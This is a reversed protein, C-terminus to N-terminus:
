KAEEITIMKKGLEFRATCIMRVRARQTTQCSDLDTDEIHLCCGDRHLNHGLYLSPINPISERMQELHGVISVFSGGKQRCHWAIMKM